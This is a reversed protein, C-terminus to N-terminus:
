RTRVPQLDIRVWGSNNQTIFRLKSYYFNEIYKDWCGYDSNKDWRVIHWYFGNSYGYVDITATNTPELTKPYTTLLSDDISAVVYIRSPRIGTSELMHTSYDTTDAITATDIDVITELSDAYYVIDQSGFITIFALLIIIYRM